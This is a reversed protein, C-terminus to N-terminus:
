SKPQLFGLHHACHVLHLTLAQERTLPGFFPSRHPPQDTSQFRQILTKLAEVATQQDQGPRPLLREPQRINEPFPERRMIKKLLPKAMLVRILWPPKDEPPYGELSGRIFYGLHDCIQALDWNGQQDYGAHHLHDVDAIVADLDTFELERRTM